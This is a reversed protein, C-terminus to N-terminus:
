NHTIAKKVQYKVHGDQGYYLDLNLNNAEIIARAKKYDSPSQVLIWDFTEVMIRESIIVMNRAWDLLWDKATLESLRKPNIGIVMVNKPKFDIENQWKWFNGRSTIDLELSITEQDQGFSWVYYSQNEKLHLKKLPVLGNHLLYNLNRVDTYFLLSRVNSRNLLALTKKKESTNTVFLTKFFGDFVNDNLSNHHWSFFRKRTKQRTKPPKTTM